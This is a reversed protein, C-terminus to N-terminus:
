CAMPRSGEPATYTEYRVDKIFGEWIEDPRLEEDFWESIEEVPASTM